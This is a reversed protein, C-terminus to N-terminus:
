ETKGAASYEALLTSGAKVKDGIKVHIQLGEEKPIVLETRSGLKIMGFREGAALEDGPKLWCVIRRAIAGTIQRVVMRRHPAHTGEMRIALHENERASEPRLANLCKGPKYTLGIVRGAIPMRNLHVNFISLFIGIQVAPGGIFEDHEIDDIAVIKGDAPSVVLHEGVPIKREPDRFFWVILSGIVFLTAIALWSVIALPGEWQLFLTCLLLALAPGFTLFSFVLLEALGVRAFPIKDRGAFPDDEPKWHWGEQNRYFKLDRPDLVEHPCPNKEGQRLSAMRAVYGKRFTKLWFRRWRGWLLELHVIVGGGPQIWTLQPDM